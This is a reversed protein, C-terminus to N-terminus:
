SKQYKQRNLYEELFEKNSRYKWKNIPHLTSFSSAVAERIIETVDAINWLIIGIFFGSSFVMVFLLKYETLLLDLGEM